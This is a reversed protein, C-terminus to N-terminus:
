EQEFRLMVDCYFTNGENYFRASGKHSAAAKKISKLGIGSSISNKGAKKTSIFEDGTKNVTGDFSNSMTIYLCGETQTDAYLTIFREKEPIKRCAEIANEVLNGFIISLVAENISIDAPVDIRWDTRINYEDAISAYYSLVANTSGHSCFFFRRSNTSFEEGYQNLYNCLAKYDQQEAYISLTRITHKFDHRMHRIYEAYDRLAEYQSAQLSLLQIANLDEYHEVTSRAIIFFMVQSIFFMLFNAVIILIMVSYVRGVHINAYHKPVMMVNIVSIVAPILWAINWVRNTHFNDLIWMIKGAFVTCFLVMVGLSFIWQVLLGLCGGVPSAAPYFFGDLMYCAIRGFSMVAVILSVMYLTKLLPLDLATFASGCFFALMMFFSISNSMSGTYSGAYASVACLGCALSIYWPLLHSLKTRLRTRLPILYMFIGPIVIAVAGIDAILVSVSM